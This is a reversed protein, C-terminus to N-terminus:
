KFAPASTNVNLRVAAHRIILVPNLSLPEVNGDAAPHSDLPNWRLQAFRAFQAIVRASLRKGGLHVRPSHPRVMGNITPMFFVTRGWEGM